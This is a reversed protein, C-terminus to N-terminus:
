KLLQVEVRRDLRSAEESNDSYRLQRMGIGEGRAPTEAVSFHATLCQAVRRARRESLDQDDEPTGIKVV